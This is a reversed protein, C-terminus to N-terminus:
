KAFGFNHWSSGSSNFLVSSQIETSPSTGQLEKVSQLLCLWFIGRGEELTLLYFHNKLKRGHCESVPKFPQVM